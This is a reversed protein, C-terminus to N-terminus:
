AMGGYLGRLSIQSDFLIQSVGGAVVESQAHGLRFPYRGEAECHPSGQAYKLPASLGMRVREPSGSAPHVGVTEQLPELTGFFRLKGADFAKEVSEPSVTTMIIIVVTTM